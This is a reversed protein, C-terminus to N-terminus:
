YQSEQKVGPRDTSRTVALVAEHRSLLVAKKFPLRRSSVKNYDVRKIDKPVFLIM